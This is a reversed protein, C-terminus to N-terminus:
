DKAFTMKLRVMYPPLKSEVALCSTLVWVRPYFFSGSVLARLTLM